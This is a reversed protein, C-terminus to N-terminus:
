SLSHSIDALAQVREIGPKNQSFSLIFVYSRFLARSDCSALHIQKYMLLVRLQATATILV